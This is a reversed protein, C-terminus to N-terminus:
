SMGDLFRKKEVTESPMKERSWKKARGGRRLAAAQGPWGGDYDWGRGGAGGVMGREEHSM